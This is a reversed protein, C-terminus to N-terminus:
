LPYGEKVENPVPFKTATKSFKGIVWVRIVGKGTRLPVSVAGRERILSAVIHAGPSKFRFRTLYELFDSLKFYWAGDDYWPRHLLIEEATSAQAKQTCFKELMEMMQGAESADEPAEILQIRELLGTIISDWKAKKVTPPNVSITEICRRQFRIQNHLDETSLMIREGNVSLFFTPPDTCYKALNSLEPMRGDNGIGYKRLKCVEKDCFQKIPSRSCTYFYEKKGAGKLIANVEGLNLPPELYEQNIASTRERWTDQDVLRAYVALNFLAENRIGESIGQTILHQLCPPGDRFDDKIPVVLAELQEKTVQAAEALDLFPDLEMPKGNDDLAYRGGAMGNFYPMNLWSGLDGRSTMITTQKPFIEAGGHGLAPAIESLKRYMLAAPIEEKSFLYLHIGGSKSRIPVLPFGSKKLTSLLEQPDFQTYIDIDIAGFFCTSDETVPIIGVGAKGAVHDEWLARTVPKRVTIAKGPVKGDGRKPGGVINYEGHAGSMGRFITMLRELNDM